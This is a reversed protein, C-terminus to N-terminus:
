RPKRTSFAQAAKRRRVARHAAHADTNSLCRTTFADSAVQRYMTCMLSLKENWRVTGEEFKAEQRLERTLPESIGYADDVVLM